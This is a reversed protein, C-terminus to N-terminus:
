LFASLIYDATKLQLNPKEHSQSLLVTKSPKATEVHSVAIPSFFTGCLCVPSLHRWSLAVLFSLWKQFYQLEYAKM